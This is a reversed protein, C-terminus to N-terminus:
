DETIYEINTEVFLHKNKDLLREAECKALEDVDVDVDDVLVYINLERTQVVRVKKSVTM